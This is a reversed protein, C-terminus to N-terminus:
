LFKDEKNDKEKIDKNIYIIKEKLYKKFLLFLLSIEIIGAVLTPIAMVKFYSTFSINASTALFINTPNGVLFFLSYTNASM